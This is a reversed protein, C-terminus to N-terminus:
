AKVELKLLQVEFPAVSASYTVNASYTGLIAGTMLNTAQVSSGTPVVLGYKSPEMALTYTAAATDAPLAVACVVSAAEKATERLFCQGHLSNTSDSLSISRTARGFVMWPKATIRALSLAQIYAIEKANAPDFFEDGYNQYTFWGMTGGVMFQQTFESVLGKGLPSNVSGARGTAYGYGGYIAHWLPLDTWELGLLIDFGTGSVEEVTGETMFMSPPVAARVDALISYFSEAWFSGGNITHNHTPDACNRTEGNGVQDVYVGDFGVENVIQIMTDRMINHWYTTSPCMVASTIHDFHELHPTLAPTTTNTKMTQAVFKQVALTANEQIWRKILTDYLQGNIYPIVRMGADQMAKISTNCNERAPFYDPYHTDFGCPANTRDCKTHNSGYAYGLTDWEYWHLALHGGHSPLDLVANVKLMELKVHEPDGGYNPGLPDGGWNNNMWLTINELWVPLDTRSELPGFKTWDANPLVWARYFSAIDWWDGSVVSIAIPFAAAYHHLPLTANLSLMNCNMSATTGQQSTGCNKVIRTPDHAAFYVANGVAVSTDYLGLMQRAANTAVTHSTPSNKVNDLYIAYDWLSVEGNADFAIGYQLVGDVLAVDVTVNIQAPPPPPPGYTYCDLPYQSFPSVGNGSYLYGNTNFATCTSANLCRAKMGEVECPPLHADHGCGPMRDCAGGNPGSSHQPLCQGMCTTNAHEVWGDTEISAVTCGIWKFELSMPSVVTMETSACKATASSASNTGTGTGVFAASWVLGPSTPNAVIVNSGGVMNMSTVTGFDAASATAFTASLKADSLTHGDAAVDSTVSAILVVLATMSEMMYM